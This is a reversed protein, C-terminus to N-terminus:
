FLLQNIEQIFHDDINGSKIASGTPINNYYLIFSIHLYKLRQEIAQVTNVFPVEVYLTNEKRAFVANEATIAQEVELMQEDTCGFVTLINGHPM